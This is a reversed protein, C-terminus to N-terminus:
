NGYKKVLGPWNAHAKAVNGEFDEDFKTRVAPNLNFYLKGDRVQWKTIDVPLLKDISVGYACYGGFQPVYKEPATEFLAKNEETAFFYTIEQYDATIHPSGNVAKSETFFAVTDFGSVAVNSAGAVNVLDGAFASSSLLLLAAISKFIHNM